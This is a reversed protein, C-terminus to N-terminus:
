WRPHRPGLGMRDMIWGSLFYFAPYLIIVYALHFFDGVLVEPGWILCIVLIALLYFFNYLFSGLSGWRGFMAKITVIVFVAFFSLMIALWHEKFLPLFFKEWAMRAGLEMGKQTADQLQSIQEKVFEPGFVTTTVM